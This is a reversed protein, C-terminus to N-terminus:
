DEERAESTATTRAALPGGHGSGGAHLQLLKHAEDLGTHHTVAAAATAATAAAATACGNCRSDSQAPERQGRRATHGDGGAASSAVPSLRECGHNDDRRVLVCAGCRGRRQRCAKQLGTQGSAHPLIREGGASDDDRHVAAERALDHDAHVVASCTRALQPSLRRVMDFPTCHSTSSEEAPSNGSPRQSLKNVNVSCEACNKFHPTSSQLANTVTGPCLM